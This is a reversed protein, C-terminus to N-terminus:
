QPSSTPRRQFEAPTIRCRSRFVTTFYQVTAFGCERAVEKVPRGEGLLLKAHHIRLERLYTKFSMGHAVRFEHSLYNPTLDLEDAVQKLQIPERFRGELIM